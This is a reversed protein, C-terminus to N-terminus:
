AATPLRRHKARYMSDDAVSLLEEPSHGDGPFVSIGFSANSRLVGGNFFIPQDIATAILEGIRTAEAADAVGPLVVVFEDGGLRAAADSLRVSGVIRRAVERLVEDGASHGFTDNIDKFRDLDLFLVTFPTSERRARLIEAALRECVSARNLLGTLDDHDARHSLHEFLLSREVALSAFQGWSDLLQHEAPSMTVARPLLALIMGATRGQSVIPVARYVAFPSAEVDSEFALAAFPEEALTLQISAIPMQELTRVLEAPVHCAAGARSEGSVELQISCAAGPPLHLTVVRALAALVGDIPEGRTVLELFNRRDQEVGEAKRAALTATEATITAAQLRTVLHRGETIDTLAGVARTPVGNEFEVRGQGRLWRTTGDALLVRFEARLQGTTSAEAVAAALLERDDTHLMPHLEGIPVREPAASWALLSALGASLTVVQDAVDVEWIGFAAAREALALRGAIDTLRQRDRLREIASGAVRAAAEVLRLEYDRPKAPWSHYM